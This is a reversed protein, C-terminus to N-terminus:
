IHILSLDEPAKVSGYGDEACQFPRDDDSQPTLGAIAATLEDLIDSIRSM